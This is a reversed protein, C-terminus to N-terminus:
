HEYGRDSLEVEDLVVAGTTVRGIATVPVDGVTRLASEPVTFLLEYDEGGFLVAERRGAAPLAEHMQPLVPLRASDIACGVESERCLLHLSHALGDSIDVLSTAVTAIRQGWSIRPAFCFLDNAEADRGADFLALAAQTRGLTGTVCVVDGVCAGARRVPSLAEGIASSVLTLESHRDVDGGVLRTGVSRCCDRAGDLVGRVLPADLEPDGLALLVAIPSAGMAALDSLSVAVSRWGITRPTAALPFDTLRHLMDTTLILHTGRFPLMAADDGAEAIEDRILRLVESERM